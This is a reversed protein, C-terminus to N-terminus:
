KILKRTVTNSKDSRITCHSPSAQVFLPVHLTSPPSDSNWSRFWRRRIGNFFVHRIKYNLPRRINEHCFHLSKDIYKVLLRHSKLVELGIILPEDFDLVDVHIDVHPNNHITIKIRVIGTSAALKEWFTFWTSSENASVVESADSPICQSANELLSPALYWHGLM